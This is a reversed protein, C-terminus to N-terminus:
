ESPIQGPQKPQEMVQQQGGGFIKNLFNQKGQLLKEKGQQKILESFAQQRMKPEKIGSFDMGTLKKLQENEQQQQKNLKKLEMTESFGQGVGGGFREGFEEGFSKVKPLLLVM